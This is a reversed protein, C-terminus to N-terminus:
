YGEADYTVGAFDVVDPALAAAADADGHLEALLFATAFHAVLSHAEGREWAPDVCVQEMVLTIV